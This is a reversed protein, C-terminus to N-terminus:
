AANNFLFKTKSVMADNRQEINPLEAGTGIWFDEEVEFNLMSDYASSTESESKSEPDQAHIDVNARCEREDFERRNQPAPFSSDDQEDDSSLEIVEPDIIQSKTNGPCPNSDPNKQADPISISSATVDNAEGMKWVAPETAVPQERETQGTVVEPKVGPVPFGEEGESLSDEFIASSILIQSQNEQDNENLELDVVDPILPEQRDDAADTVDQQNDKIINMDKNISINVKSNFNQDLQENQTSPQDDNSVVEEKTRSEDNSEGVNGEDAPVGEYNNVEINVLEEWDQDLTTINTNEEEEIKDVLGDAPPVGCADVEVKGVLDSWQVWRIEGFDPTSEETEPKPPPMKTAYKLKVTWVSLSKSFQVLSLTEKLFDELPRERRRWM